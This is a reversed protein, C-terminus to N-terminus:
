QGLAVGLYWEILHNGYLYAVVSGVVLFPGFPILRPRPRKQRARLALLGLSVAAALNFALLLALATKPLGLILGMLFVLKIDGGGMWKGGSVAALTYFMGGALLAAVIPFAWVEMASGMAAQALRYVLTVAAAPLLVVDPLLMWKLDYIALIIFVTLIYLWLGLESWGVFTAPQIANYSLGFLAATLIEVLPYQVSIARHCYRCRGRLWLWSVVPLLDRPALDHRCDPCMSHGMSISLRQKQKKGESIEGQQHLRWVVANIFSGVLLGFFSVILLEILM